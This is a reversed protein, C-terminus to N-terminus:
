VPVIEWDAPKGADVLLEAAEPATDFRRARNIDESVTSILRIIGLTKSDHLDGSKVFYHIENHSNTHKLVFKSENM